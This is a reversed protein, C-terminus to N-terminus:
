LVSARAKTNWNATQKKGVYLECATQLMPAIQPVRRVRVAHKQSSKITIMKLTTPPDNWTQYFSQRVAELEDAIPKLDHTWFVVNQKDKVAQLLTPVDAFPRMDCFNTQIDEDFRHSLQQSSLM